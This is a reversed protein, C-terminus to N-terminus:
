LIEIGERYEGLIKIEQTQTQLVEIAKRYNTLNSVILDIYFEYKWKAGLVPLSEIKTLNLNYESLTNLIKALSGVEHTLTFFLSVKNINRKLKEKEIILFRTYNEKNNEISSELIELNYIEAAMTCGITAIGQKNEEAIEKASLATDFSETAKIHKHKDFFDTCQALAMPHSQIESIEEIKQGKLVILNQIIRLYIEGAITFNSHKLLKYNNHISGAVSNEIAMMFCDIENNELLNFMESFQKCCVIEVEEVFYNNVALHHFSGLWGQIAVKTKEM